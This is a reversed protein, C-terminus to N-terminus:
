WKVEVTKRAHVIRQNKQKQKHTYQFTNKISYAESLNKM